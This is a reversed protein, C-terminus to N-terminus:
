FLFLPMNSLLWHLNSVPFICSNSNVQFCKSVIIHKIYNFLYNWLEKSKPEYSSVVFM